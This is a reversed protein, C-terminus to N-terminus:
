ERNFLDTQEPGTHIKVFCNEMGFFNWTNSFIGGWTGSLVAQGAEITRDIERLTQTFDCGAVTPWHYAHIEEVDECDAFVGEQGLSARKVNGMQAVNFPDFMPYDTHQRM